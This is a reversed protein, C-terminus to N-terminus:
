FRASIAWALEYQQGFFLNSPEEVTTRARSLGTHTRIWSLIMLVPICTIMTKHETLSKCRSVHGCGCLGTAMAVKLGHSQMWYAHARRVRSNIRM